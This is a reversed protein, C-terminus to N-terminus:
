QYMSHEYKFSFGAMSANEHQRGCSRVNIELLHLTKLSFTNSDYGPYRIKLGREQDGLQTFMVIDSSQALKRLQLAPSVIDFDQFNKERPLVNDM